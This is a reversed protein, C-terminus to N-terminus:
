PPSWELEKKSATEGSPKQPHSSALRSSALVLMLLGTCLGTPKRWTFQYYQQLQQPLLLLPQHGRMRSGGKARPKESTRKPSVSLHWVPLLPVRTCWKRQENRGLPKRIRDFFWCYLMQSSQNDPITTPFTDMEVIDLAITRHFM